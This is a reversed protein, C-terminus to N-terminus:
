NYTVFSDINDDVYQLTDLLDDSNKLQERIAEKLDKVSSM